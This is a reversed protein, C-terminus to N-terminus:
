QIDLMESLAGGVASLTSMIKAYPMRTPGIVGITGTHGRGVRYPSMVVSCCAIEEIGSEPGIRVAIDPEERQRLLGMLRDKEELFSLVTRAREMDAYEPYNLINHTGSVRVSDSASQKEMQAALEIIGRLVRPDADVHASFEKLMEQAQALTKGGFRDTLMRSIAYLADADLAEAVHVMSDRIIGGDTVIVLLATAQSIPVLQMGSIRLQQQRPMLVVSAYHTLESVIQATSAVIDELQQVRQMFYDRAQANEALTSSPNELLADVYLRYARANPVRGASVHPQELLGLAELDNMENRITASSLGMDYRRLLANSGVPAATAIYDDIVACLIRKKREDIRKGM